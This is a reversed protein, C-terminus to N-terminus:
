SEHRMSWSIPLRAARYPMKGKEPGTVFASVSHYDCAAALILRQADDRLSTDAREPTAPHGPSCRDGGSLYTPDALVPTIDKFLIGPKPFIPARRPYRLPPAPFDDSAM